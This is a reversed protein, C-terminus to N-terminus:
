KELKYNKLAKLYPSDLMMKLELAKEESLIENLSNIISPPMGKISTHTMLFFPNPSSM